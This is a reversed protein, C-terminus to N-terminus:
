RGQGRLAMKGKPFHNGELPLCLGTGIHFCARNALCTPMEATRFCAWLCFLSRPSLTLPCLDELLLVSFVTLLAPCQLPYSMAPLHQTHDAGESSSCVCSSLRMWFCVANKAFSSSASHPHVESLSSWTKSVNKMPSTIRNFQKESNNIGDRWCLHQSLAFRSFLSGFLPLLLGPEGSRWLANSVAPQMRLAAWRWM